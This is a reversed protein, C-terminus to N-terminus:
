DRRKVEKNYEDLVYQRQKARCGSCVYYVPGASGEEFDRTPQIGETSEHCWDCSHNKYWPEEKNWEERCVACLDAFEAGFSDTEGQIRVVADVEPHNDCKMGEPVKHRVGPLTSIPGTVDAM